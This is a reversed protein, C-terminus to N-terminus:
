PNPNSSRDTVGQATFNSRHSGKVFETGGGELADSLDVLPILLTLYFTPLSVDV